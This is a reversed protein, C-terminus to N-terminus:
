ICFQNLLLQVWHDYLMQGAHSRDYCAWQKWPDTLIGRAEQVKGSENAARRMVACEERYVALSAMHADFLLMDSPPIDRFAERTMNNVLKVQDIRWEYGLESLM